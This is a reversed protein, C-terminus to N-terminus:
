GAARASRKQYAMGEVWFLILAAWVIGYGILDTQTFPEKYVLVGILFQLTPALYQLIGVLALPINRAGATFLLMPVVTIAGAAILLLWTTLDASGLVGEGRSSVFLLYGIAPLCLVAM